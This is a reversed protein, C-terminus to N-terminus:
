AAHRQEARTLGREARAPKQAATFERVTIVAPYAWASSWVWQTRPARRRCRRRGWVQRGTYTSNRLIARIDTHTWVGPHATESGLPVPYRAAVLRQRIATVTTGDVGRWVFIMKVTAAEVPEIVLRTRWRPRRETPAVRVRQSRYGYPVTGTNFGALVMEASARRADANNVAHYERLVQQRVTSPVAFAATTAASPTDARRHRPCFLRSAWGPARFRHPRVIAAWGPIHDCSDDHATTNAPM